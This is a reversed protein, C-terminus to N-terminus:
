IYFLNKGKKNKSLTREFIMKRSDKDFLANHVSFSEEELFEEDQM